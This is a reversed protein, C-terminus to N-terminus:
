AACAAEEYALAIDRMSVVGVLRGNDIVPVHRIGHRAMLREVDALADQSNCSVLSRPSIFQVVKMALGNTGREAIVAVVDRESFMGIVAADKSRSSNRVVLAGVNSAYMLNAAISVTENSGITVVHANNARLIDGVYM